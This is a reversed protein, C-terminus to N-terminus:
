FFRLAETITRSSQFTTSSMSKGLSTFSFNGSIAGGSSKYAHEFYDVVLKNLCNQTMNFRCLKPINGNIAINELTSSCKSPIM